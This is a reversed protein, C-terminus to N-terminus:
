INIKNKIFNHFHKKLINQIEGTLENLIIIHVAAATIWDITYIDDIYFSSVGGLLHLLEKYNSPVRHTIVAWKGIFNM